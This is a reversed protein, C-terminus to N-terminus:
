TTLNSSFIEEYIPGEGTLISEYLTIGAVPFTEGLKIHKIKNKLCDINKLDKIRALTIHSKFRGEKKFGLIELEEELKRAIDELLGRKSADIFFIRPKRQNPFFGFNDFGITFTKFSGAIKTIVQKIEDIQSTEIDGLFKLSLHLNKTKVWRFTLGCEAFDKVLRTIKDKLYGPLDVAIFARM